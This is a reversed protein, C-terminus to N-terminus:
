LEDFQGFYTRRVFMRGTLFPSLVSCNGPVAYKTRKAKRKAEELNTGFHRDRRVQALNDFVPSEMEEEEEEEQDSKYLSISQERTSM